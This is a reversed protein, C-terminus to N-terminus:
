FSMLWVSSCKLSHIEPPYLSVDKPTILNMGKVAEEGGYYGPSSMYECMDGLEKGAGGPIAKDFDDVSGRVTQIKIGTIETWIKAIDNVSAWDGFGM